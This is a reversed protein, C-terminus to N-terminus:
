FNLSKATVSGGLSNKDFYDLFTIKLSMKLRLRIYCDLPIIEALFSIQLKLLIKSFVNTIPEM